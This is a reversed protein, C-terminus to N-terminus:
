RSCGLSLTRCTELLQEFLIPVCVLTVPGHNSIEFEDFQKILFENLPSCSLYTVPVLYKFVEGKEEEKDQVYIPVFGKPIKANAENNKM